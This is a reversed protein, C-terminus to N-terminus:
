LALVAPLTEGRALQREIVDHRDGLAATLVPLVDDGAAHRAVSAFAPPRRRFGVHVEQLRGLTRLGSWGKANGHTESVRRFAPTIVQVPVDLEVVRLHGRAHGGNM